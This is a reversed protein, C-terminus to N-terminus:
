TPKPLACYGGICDQSSQDCCDAKAKCKEDLNSCGKPKGCQSNTCAGGCCDIGSSCSQGDAKCPELAAFARINGSVLEQGPLYFAPHSEIQGTELIQIPTVWIKMSKTDTADAVIITANASALMNGYSRRSTFYVWFYGGSAVPSVTTYFNLHEDRGPYPLYSQGSAYGNALDLASATGGAASVVYLDSAAITQAPPNHTSAFNNGDGLVFVVYRSDPTFFPWGPYLSPDQYVTNANSFVNAAPDFDMVVLSHGTGHDYDNFVVKKGDPSFMPMMAHTAALGSFSITAGTRPDYMKSASPGIMGPNNGAAGPFPPTTTNAQGDTLLRSGDPYMASFGWDDSTIQALPASTNLTAAGSLNYSESDLLGSANMGAFLYNHRQAALYQGDASVSHCSICPGIPSLGVLTMLVTPMAASPAISMVAGNNGALQSTYTNYYILGKLSGRAFTWTERIPGSVTGGTVSTLEVTLPDSTGGGQAWAQDWATQPVALQPPNSGAFCGKYDFLNSHLHLYVGDPASSQAWQLTPALIGGPFVTKDYPYLWKMSSSVAGGGQLAAAAAASLTGPCDNIAVPAMGGMPGPTGDSGSDSAPRCLLGCGGSDGSPPSSSGSSSGSSTADAQLGSAGGDDAAFGGGPATACAGSAIACLVAALWPLIRLPLGANASPIAACRM